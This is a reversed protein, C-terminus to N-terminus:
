ETRREDRSANGFVAFYLRNRSASRSLTYSPIMSTINSKWTPGSSDFRSERQDCNTHIYKQSSANQLKEPRLGAVKGVFLTQLDCTQFKKQPIDPFSLSM